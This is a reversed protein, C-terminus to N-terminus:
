CLVSNSDRRLSQAGGPNLAYWILTQLAYTSLLWTNSGLIRSEYFCWAKILLSARKFLHNEGVMEHVEELLGLSSFGGVQNVSIDVAMEGVFCKVIKVEADICYVDTVVGLGDTSDARRNNLLSMVHVEWNDYEPGYGLVCSVDLDGDPLYTKLPVSGFQFIQAGLSRQVLEGVNTFVQERLKEDVVRPTLMATLEDAYQEGEKFALMEDGVYDEVDLYHSPEPEPELVPVPVPVPEPEPELEPEPEPEPGPEPAPALEPEVVAM